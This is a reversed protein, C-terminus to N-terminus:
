GLLWANVLATGVWTFVVPFVMHSPKRAAYAALGLCLVLAAWCSFIDAGRAFEYWFVATTKVDLFFALNAALPNFLNCDERCALRLSGILLRELALPLLAYATFCVVQARSVDSDLVYHIHLDMLLGTLWAGFPLLFPAAVTLFLLIALSSPYMGDPTADLRMQLFNSRGLRFFAPYNAFAASAGLAVLPLWLPDCTTAAAAERPNFLVALLRAARHL